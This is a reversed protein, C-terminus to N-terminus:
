VYSTLRAVQGNRVHHLFGEIATQNIYGNKAHWGDPESPTRICEISINKVSDIDNVGSSLITVGSYDKELEISNVTRYKHHMHHVYWYCYRTQAWDERAEYQMLSPLDKNKAGDGHTVGILNSGYRIYKRHRPSKAYDSVNVNPDNRYWAYIVDTLAFGLKYDHNSPCFVITVDAIEKARNIVEIYMDRAATFMSWWQGDTDQPTGGTTTRTTTDIHLVDNGVIIVIHHVGFSQARALIDTTGNLVRQIAVNINYDRSGTEETLALKGIHIDAPDLVLLHQKSEPLPPYVKPTPNPAYAKLDNILNDRIEEYEMIEAKNRVFISVDDGQENKTKLWYHSVRDLPIGTRTAEKVLVSNEDHVSNVHRKVTRRDIGLQQAVASYSGLKNYLEFIKLSDENSYKSM